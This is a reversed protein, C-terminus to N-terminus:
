GHLSTCPVGQDGVRNGPWSNGRDIGSSGIMPLGPGAHRWLATKRRSRLWVCPRHGHCRRSARKGRQPRKAGNGRSVAVHQVRQGQGGSIVSQGRPDSPVTSHGPAWVVAPSNLPLGISQRGGPLGTLPFVRQRPRRGARSVTCRCGCLRSPAREAFRFNALREGFRKRRSHSLAARM